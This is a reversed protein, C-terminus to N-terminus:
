LAPPAVRDERILFCTALFAVFIAGASAFFTKHLGVWGPLVGGLL